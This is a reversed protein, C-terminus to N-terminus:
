CEQDAKSRPESGPERQALHPGGMLALHQDCRQEEQDEGAVALVPHGEGVDVLLPDREDEIQEREREGGPCQPSRRRPYAAILAWISIFGAGAQWWPDSVPRDM